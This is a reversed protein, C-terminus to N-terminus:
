AANPRVWADPLPEPYFGCAFILKPTPGTIPTSRHSLHKGVAFLLADGARGYDYTEVAGTRDRRLQFLGGEFPLAGLNVTMSLMRSGYSDDKHWELRHGRRMRYVRGSLGRIIGCGTISEITRFLSPNNFIIPLLVDLEPCTPSERREFDRAVVSSFRSRRLKEQVWKLLGPDVLDPIRLVSSRKYDAKLARAARATLRNEFADRSIRLMM